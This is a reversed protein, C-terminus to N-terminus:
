PDLIQQQIIKNLIVKVIYITLWLNMSHKILGQNKKERTESAQNSIESTSAPASSEGGEFREKNRDQLAQDIFPKYDNFSGRTSEM